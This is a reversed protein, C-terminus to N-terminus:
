VFRYHTRTALFFRVLAPSLEACLPVATQVRNFVLQNAETLLFRIGAGEGADRGPPTEVILM